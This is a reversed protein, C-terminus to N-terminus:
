LTGQRSNICVKSKKHKSLNSKSSLTRGCDECTYSSKLNQRYYNQHCAKQNDRWRVNTDRLERAEQSADENESSSSNRENIRQMVMDNEAQMLEVLMDFEHNTIRHKGTNNVLYGTM